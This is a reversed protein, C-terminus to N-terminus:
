SDHNLHSLMKLHTPYFTIYIGRSQTNIGDVRVQPIQLWCLKAASSVEAKGECLVIDIEKALVKLLKLFMLDIESVETSLAFGGDPEPEFTAFAVKLSFTQIFICHLHQNNHDHKNAFCNEYIM